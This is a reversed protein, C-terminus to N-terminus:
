APASVPLGHATAATLLRDAYAAFAEPAAGLTLASALEAVRVVGV